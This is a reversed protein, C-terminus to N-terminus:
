GRHVVAVNDRSPHCPWLVLGLWKGLTYKNFKHMANYKLHLIRLSQEEEKDMTYGGKHFQMVQISHARQFFTEKAAELAAQREGSVGSQWASTM